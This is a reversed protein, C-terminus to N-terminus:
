ECIVRALAEEDLMSVFDGREVTEIEELRCDIWAQFQADSMAEFPDPTIHEM